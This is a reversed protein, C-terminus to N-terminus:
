RGNPRDELCATTPQRFYPPSTILQDVSGDPMARLVEHADGHVLLSM